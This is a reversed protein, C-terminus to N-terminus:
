YVISYVTLCVSLCLIFFFNFALLCSWGDLWQFSQNGSGSVVWGIWWGIVWDVLWDTHACSHTDELRVPRPRATSPSRPRPWCSLPWPVWLMLTWIQHPSRNYMHCFSTRWTAWSGVVKSCCVTNGYHDSIPIVHHLVVAWSGVVKSCCVTNGYHDSISRLFDRLHGM